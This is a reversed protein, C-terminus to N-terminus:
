GAIKWGLVLLESSSDMELPSSEEDDSTSSRAEPTTSRDRWRNCDSCATSFSDFRSGLPSYTLPPRDFALHLFTNSLGRQEQLHVMGMLIRIIIHWAKQCKLLVVCSERRQLRWFSAPDPFFFHARWPFWMHLSAHTAKKPIPFPLNFRHLCFKKPLSRRDM